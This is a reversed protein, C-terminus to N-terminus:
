STIPPYGGIKLSPDGLVVWQQVTKVDIASDSGNPTDWDIPSYEDLYDTIANGWAQGVYESGNIGVQYFFQPELFCPSVHHSYSLM